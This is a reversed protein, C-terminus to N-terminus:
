FAWHVRKKPKPVPAVNQDMFSTAPASASFQQTVATGTKEEEDSEREETISGLDPSPARWSRPRRASLSRTQGRGRGNRSPTLRVIARGRNATFDPIAIGLGKLGDEARQSARSKRGDGTHRRTFDKLSLPMALGFDEDEDDEDDLPLPPSHKQIASPSIERVQTTKSTSSEIGASLDEDDDIDEPSTLFYSFPDMDIADTEDVDEDRIRLVTPPWSDRRQLENFPMTIQKETSKPEYDYLLISYTRSV